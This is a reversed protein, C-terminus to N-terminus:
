VNEVFVQLPVQIAQNAPRGVRSKPGPWTRPTTPDTQHPPPGQEFPLRSSSEEEEGEGWVIEREKERLHIPLFILIRLNLLISDM